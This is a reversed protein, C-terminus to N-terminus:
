DDRAGRGVVSISSRATISICLWWCSRETDTIVAPGFESAAAM